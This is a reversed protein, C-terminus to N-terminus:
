FLSNIKWGDKEHVFILTEAKTVGGDGSLTIIVKASTPNSPPDYQPSSVSSKPNSVSQMFDYYEESKRNSTSQDDSTYQKTEFNETTYKSATNTDRSTVANLWKKAVQDPPVTRMSLLIMILIIAGLISGGIIAIKKVPLESQTNDKTAGGPWRDTQTGCNICVKQEPHLSEGCKQCKM